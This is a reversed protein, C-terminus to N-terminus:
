PVVVAPLPWPLRETAVRVGGTVTGGTRRAVARCMGSWLLLQMERAVPLVDYLLHLVTASSRAWSEIEFRTAAGREDTCLRFTIHGAEIHGLLTVLSLSTADVATVRIPAGFPGPLDVICELGVHLDGVPKRDVTEFRGLTTPVFANIDALLEAFVQTAPRSTATIDVWYRRHFLPGVGDDLHQVTTPDGVLDDHGVPVARVEDPTLDVRDRRREPVRDLPYRLSHVTNSRAWRTLGRAVRAPTVPRRLHRPPRPPVLPM